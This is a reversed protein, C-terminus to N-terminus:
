YDWDGSHGDFNLINASRVDADVLGRMDPRYQQKSIFIAKRDETLGFVNGTRVDMVSQRYGDRDSYTEDFFVFESKIDIKYMM